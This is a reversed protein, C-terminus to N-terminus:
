WHYSLFVAKVILWILTILWDITKARIFGLCAYYYGFGCGQHISSFFGPDRARHASFAALRLPWPYWELRASPTYHNMSISQYISEIGHTFYRYRYYLFTVKIKASDVNECLTRRHIVVLTHKRSWDWTDPLVRYLSQRFAHPSCLLHEPNNSYCDRATHFTERACM